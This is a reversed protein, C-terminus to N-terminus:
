SIVKQGIELDISTAEGITWPQSTVPNETYNIQYYKYSDTLQYTAPNLYETSNSVLFPSFTKPGADTKKAYILHVLARVNSAPTPLAGMKYSDIANVTSSEVYTSDGDPTTDDICQYNSGASPTFQSYTGAGNIRRPSVRSDNTWTNFSSGTDDFAYTDCFDITCTDAYSFGVGIRNAYNNSTIRTNVNTASLVTTNNIRLEYAGATNHFTVMFQFHTWTNLPLLPASTTALVTGSSGFWQIGRHISVTNNSNVAISMQATSGDWMSMIAHTSGNGNTFSGIKVACNMFLTSANSPLLKYLHGGSATCSVRLASQGSYRGSNSAVSSGPVNFAVDMGDWFNLVDGTSYIDPCDAFLLM